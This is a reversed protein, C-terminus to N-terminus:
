RRSRARCVRLVRAARDDVREDLRDALPAQQHQQVVALVDDVGAGLERVRQQPIARVDRQERGATLREADVALADVPNRGHVRRGVVIVHLRDAVGLGHPEEGVAGRLVPHREGPVLPGSRNDAADAPPEVANRQGDLQGSGAQPDHRHGLQVGPEVLTEGKQGAARARGQRALLRQKGHDVPGPLQQVGGLALHEGTQRHEGPPEVQGGGLRDGRALVHGGLSTTPCRPARTSM